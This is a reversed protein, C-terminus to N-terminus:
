VEKRHIKKHCEACLTIGNDVNFREAVDYAFQKIHHAQLQTEAIGCSQCSYNDRKLVENRWTKYAQSTRIEKNSLIEYNDIIFKILIFIAKEEKILNKPMESTLNYKCIANYLKIQSKNDLLELAKLYCAYFVFSERM